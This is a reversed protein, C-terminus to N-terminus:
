PCTFNCEVRERRGAQKELRNYLNYKYYRLCETEYLAFFHRQENTWKARQECSYNDTKASVECVLYEKIKNQANGYHWQINESTKM